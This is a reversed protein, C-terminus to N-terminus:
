GEEKIWLQPLGHAAGLRDARLLPTGGEGLSVIEAPARAPIFEDGRCLGRPRLDADERRFPTLDYEAFLSGGCGPRTCVNLLPGVDYRADCKTCTLHTLRSFTM